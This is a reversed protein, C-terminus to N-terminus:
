YELTGKIDFVSSTSEPPNDGELTFSGKIGDYDATGNTPRARGRVIETGKRDVRVTGTLHAKFSGAPQSFTLRLDLPVAPGGPEPVRPVTRDILVATRGIPTARVQGAATLKLAPPTVVASVARGTFARKKTDGSSDDGGALLVVAVVAAAVVLAGVAALLGKPPGGGSRPPQTAAPAPPPPPPPPSPEAAGQPPAAAPPQTATVKTVAPAPIADPSPSDRVVTSSAQVLEAEIVAPGVEIRGSLTLTVPASIRTGDVITGNLSGLDEIVIGGETGPRVIAHRRSIEGDAITLGADERGIVVDGEVAVEQGSGPGSVVRLVHM